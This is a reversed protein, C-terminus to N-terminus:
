KKLVLPAKGPSTALKGQIEVELPRSQVAQRGHYAVAVLTAPGRGISNAKIQVQGTGQKVTALTRHNHKIEIRDASESKVNLNLVGREDVTNDTATLSVQQQKNNVMLQLVRRGTSKIAGQNVAVIRLEHYGDALRTTDLRIKGFSRTAQVLAGDLYMELSELASRTQSFDPTLVLEGTVEGNAPLGNIEFKPIRAWPQCLADGVILLQFPGHVSQYFSEALTCGRVYHLHINPHPFKNPISFPEVVTGSSGAAGARLLETLKTQSRGNELAGGYSTLNECIAGPLIKNNAKTMSYTSTGMTLGAIRPQQAPRIAKIQRAQHGLRKLTKIAYAFEPKRTTVRVDKTDTFYFTGQPRTGDARIARQLQALAAAESMGQNRTVALVTSLVYSEGQRPSANIMGNIGWHYRSRFGLTPLFRYDDNPIRGVLKKFEPDERLNEFALDSRTFERYSWGAEITRKLHLIAEQQKGSRAYFRALWYLCAVQRPHQEALPKLLEIARRYNKKEGLALASRFTEQSEGIFPTRLLDVARTRMYKNADLAFFTPQDALIRTYFFTMSNISAVPNYVRKMSEAKQKGIVKAAQEMFKALPNSVTVQTPIDASYVIYDIQKSLQRERIQTVIPILVKERFDPYSIRVANPLDNLYVVNRAPINRLRIYHNAILKSSRSQANIVVVM